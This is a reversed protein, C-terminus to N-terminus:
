TFDKIVYNIQIDMLLMLLCIAALSSDDQQLGFCGSCKGFSHTLAAAHHISNTINHRTKICAYCRRWLLKRRSCYFWCLLDHFFSLLLLLLVLFTVELTQSQIIKAKYSNNIKAPTIYTEYVQKSM